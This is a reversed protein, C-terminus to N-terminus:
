IYEDNLIPPLGDVSLRKARTVNIRNVIPKGHVKGNKKRKKSHVSKKNGITFERQKNEFCVTRMWTLISYKYFDSQLGSTVGALQIMRAVTDLAFKMMTTQNTNKKTVFVFCKLVLFRM